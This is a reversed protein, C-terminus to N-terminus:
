PVVGTAGESSLVMIWKFAINVDYPALEAFFNVAKLIICTNDKFPNVRRILRQELLGM